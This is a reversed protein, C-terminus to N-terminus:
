KTTIPSCLRAFVFMYVPGSIQWKYSVFMNSPAWSNWWLLVTLTIYNWWRWGSSPGQLRQTKFPSTFNLSDSFTDIKGCASINQRKKYPNTLFGASTDEQRCKQYSHWEPPGTLVLHRNCLMPFCILATTVEILSVM